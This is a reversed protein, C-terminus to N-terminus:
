LTKLMVSNRENTNRAVFCVLNCVKNINLDMWLSKKQLDQMPIKGQALGVKMNVRFITKQQLIIITQLQKAIGACM